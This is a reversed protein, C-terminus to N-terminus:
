LLLPFASGGTITGSLSVFVHQVGTNNAKNPKNANIPNNNPNTKSNVECWSILWGFNTEWELAM